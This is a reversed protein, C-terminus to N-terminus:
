GGRRAERGTDGADGITTRDLRAAAVAISVTDTVQVEARVEAKAEADGGAKEFSEVEVM